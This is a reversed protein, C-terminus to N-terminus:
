GTIGSREIGQIIYKQAFCYLLLLPLLIMLGCTNVIVWEGSPREPDHTVTYGKSELRKILRESDVLNKSCGMSIIDIHNKKFGM